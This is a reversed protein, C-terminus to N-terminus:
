LRKHKVATLCKNLEVIEYAYMFLMDVCRVISCHQLFPDITVLHPISDLGSNKGYVALKVMAM